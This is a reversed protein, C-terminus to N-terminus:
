NPETGVLEWGQTIAELRNLNVTGDVVHANVMVQDVELLSLSAQLYYHDVGRQATTKAHGLETM